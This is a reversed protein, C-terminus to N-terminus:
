IVGRQRLEAPTVVPQPPPLGDSASRLATAVFLARFGIVWSLSFQVWGLPIAAAGLDMLQADGEHLEVPVWFRAPLNGIERGTVGLSLHLAPADVSSNILSM